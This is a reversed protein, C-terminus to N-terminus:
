AAVYTGTLQLYNSGAGTGVNVVTATVAAQSIYLLMNTSNNQVVGFVPNAVAWSVSVGGVCISNGNQGSSSAAATFPLGGIYVNGSASGITVASTRMTLQIHVVNGVKIYRAGTESSYTVSTFGVGDTTLTPNFTGEEYDALLESTGTGPTASFDIGNGSVLAALNGAQTIQWVPSFAIAAGAVGSPAVSWTHTGDFGQQTYRTAFGDIKYTPAYWDGVANSMMAFQPAATNSRSSITAGYPLEFNTCATPPTPTAGLGLNVSDFVLGTGSTPVKSANLYQVGNATGAAVPAAQVNAITAKVTTTSQVIPFVETGGLPTTAATLASIKKDAM